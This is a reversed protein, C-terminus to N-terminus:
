WIHRRRSISGTLRAPGHPIWAILHAPFPMLEVLPLTRQLRGAANESSYHLNKVGHLIGAKRIDDLLNPDQGKEKSPQGVPPIQIKGEGSFPELVNNSCDLDESAKRCTHASLKMGKDQLGVLCRYTKAKLITPDDATICKVQLMPEPFQTDICMVETSKMEVQLALISVDTMKNSPSSQTGEDYLIGAKTDRNWDRQERCPSVSYVLRM